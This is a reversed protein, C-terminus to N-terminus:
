RWLLMEEVPLIIHEYQILVKTMTAVDSRGLTTKIDSATM